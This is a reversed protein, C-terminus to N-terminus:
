PLTTYVEDFSNEGFVGLSYDGAKSPMPFRCVIKTPTASVIETEVPSPVVFLGRHGNGFITLGEKIVLQRAYLPLDMRATTRMKKPNSIDAVVIGKAGISIYARDEQLSVGIASAMTPLVGELVPNRRDTVDFALLGNRGNVVYLTGNRYAGGIMPSFSYEPWPLAYRGVIVPRGPDAIDVVVIGGTGAILFATERDEDVAVDTAFGHDLPLSSLLQPRARDALDFIQLGTVMGEGDKGTLENTVVLALGNYFRLTMALGMSDASGLLRQEDPRAIDLVDLSGRSNAIYASDGDVEIDRVKGELSTHGILGLRGAEDIELTKLGGKGDALYLNRDVLRLNMADGKSNFHDITQLPQIRREDVVAMGGKSNAVYIHGGEAVAGRANRMGITGALKPRAFSSVDIVHVGAMAAVYVRDNLYTISAPRGLLEINGLISPNALNSKLDILFLRGSMDAAFGVGEAADVAMVPEGTDMGGSLAPKSPQSIDVFQLGGKVSAVMLGFDGAAALDISHGEMPLTTVHHPASPRSADFVHLGESGAAVYLYNGVIELSWAVGPSILKEAVFPNGPRSFDVVAVGGQACAVYALHDRIDVSMARGEVEVSGLIFPLDPDSMDVVQVGHNGNALIAIEGSLAIDQLAGWTKLTGTVSRQNGVDLSLSIRPDSGFGSGTVVAEVANGNEVPRLEFADIRTEEEGSVAKFPFVFHAMAVIFLAVLLAAVSIIKRDMTM